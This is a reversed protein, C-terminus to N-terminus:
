YERHAAVILAANKQQQAESQAKSRKRNQATRMLRKVHRVNYAHQRWDSVERRDCWQATLVIVKRAADFLLNIDTPYHVDTEVVFSDCRGRLAEGEKKKILAHGGSVVVQNIKDLLEPTFLSVNDVLTQYQYM